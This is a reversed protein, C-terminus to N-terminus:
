ICRRPRPSRASCSRRTTSTASRSRDRQPISGSIARSASRTAALDIIAHFMPDAGPAVGRLWGAYQDFSAFPGYPLYTWNRGDADLANADYLARAHVDADLPEVRCTRGVMPDRPPRPPPKWGDVRFGLPQGAANVETTTVSM